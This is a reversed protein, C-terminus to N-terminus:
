PGVHSIQSPVGSVDDPVSMRREETLVISGEGCGTEEAQPLMILRILRSVVPKDFSILDFGVRQTTSICRYEWM